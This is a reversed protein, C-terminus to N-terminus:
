HRLDTGSGDDDQGGALASAHLRCQRLHHVRDAPAGKEMVRDGRGLAGRGVVEDDDDAVLAVLEDGM